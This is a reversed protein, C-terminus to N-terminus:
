RVGRGPVIIRRQPAPAPPIPAPAAAGNVADGSVPLAVGGNAIAEALARYSPPLIAPLPQRAGATHVGQTTTHLIAKGDGDFDHHFIYGCRALFKMPNSSGPVLPGGQPSETTPHKKLALWIKNLPLQQMQDVIYTMHQGLDGYVLRGEPRKGNRGPAERAMSMLVGLYFEAYFTLHDLIVTEYKGPQAKLEAALKAIENPLDAPHEVVRISLGREPTDAMQPNWFEASPIKTLVEWGEENNVCLFVPKPWTAAFWTKM